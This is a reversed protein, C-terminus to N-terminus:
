APPCYRSGTLRRRRGRVAAPRADERAPATLIVRCPARSLVYKTVEGVFNELPSGRGGLRAGGRIRSPEEAALVISSWAAGARRRWSRTARRARASRRPRSRWARTSRGWPRRAACRLARASSSRTPCAPTSPCRCRSRSSGCRRSRRARGGGGRRRARRRRPPGGDARHRRRAAHGLIPVLISGYEAREPERRLAAEPVVVRRFVPKSEAVRYVLYLAVGFAM